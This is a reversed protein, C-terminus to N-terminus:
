GLVLVTSSQTEQNCVKKFINVLEFLSTKIISKLEHVLILNMYLNNWNTNCIFVNQIRKWMYNCNPNFAVHQFETENIWKIGNLENCKKYKKYKDQSYEFELDINNLWCFDIKVFFISMTGKENVLVISDEVDKKTIYNDFIYCSEEKFERYATDVANETSKVGGGFDTFDGTARDIGLLFYIIDNKITFPIVGSRTIYKNSKLTIGNTITNIM